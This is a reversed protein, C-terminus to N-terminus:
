GARDAALLSRLREIMTKAFRVEEPNARSGPMKPDIFERRFIQDSALAILLKLEEATFKVMIPKKRPEASRQGPKETSVNMAPTEELKNQGNRLRVDPHHKEGVGNSAAPGRVTESRATRNARLNLDRDLILQAITEISLGAEEQSVKSRLLRTTAEDIGRLDTQRSLAKVAAAVTLQDPTM